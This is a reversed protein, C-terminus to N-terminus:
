GGVNLTAGIVQDNVVKDVPLSEGTIMSEDVSTQGQIIQGDVPISQGAKVVVIDDIQVDEIAVTVENGNKLVTATAPLLNM